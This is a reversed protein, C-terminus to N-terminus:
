DKTAIIVDVYQVALDIATGTFSHNHASSGGVANTASGGADAARRAAGGKAVTALGGTNTGALHTHSPMQAETLTTNGVTGAISRSTFATTFGVTGGSGAAGSVVRLAKDNHTTSKTWGTPANTQAFILATGTAFANNTIAGSVFATSAVQTNSTGPAATPTTPTGTMVPSSMNPSTLTKDTLTQAGSATIIEIGDLTTGAPLDEINEGSAIAEMAAAVPRLEFKDGAIYNRATTGDQGRVVTLTDVARATVKVIELNNSSDILTAYFYQGSSLAPFYSGQGTVVAIATVSPNISTALSASANNTFKIM